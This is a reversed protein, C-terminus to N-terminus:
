IEEVKFVKDINQKLVRFGSGHDHTKGKNKGSRFVGMRIDYLILGAEVMDIFKEPSLGSLLVAKKFHFFEKEGEKKPEASIYAIYKCKNELIYAIDDFTYFVDRDVIRESALDKILIYIKKAKRDVELKFGLRKIYTNFKLSSFTTHITKLGDSDSDPEGYRERLYTNVKPPNSPAKTFLTMMSVSFERSSKLELVGKYDAMFNNNELINMYDEFTKGIGTDHIRHSLVFGKKKISLFEKKFASIVKDDM